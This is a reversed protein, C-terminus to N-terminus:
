TSSRILRTRILRARGTGTKIQFHLTELNQFRCHARLLNYPCLWVDADADVSLDWQFANHCKGQHKLDTGSENELM